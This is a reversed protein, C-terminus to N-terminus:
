PTVKFFNTTNAYTQAAITEVSENRLKAIAEVVYRTYGPENQKGRYPTPTLYPADTEVMMRDAPVAKAAAHVLPANKFSVVGSFSIMMGLDLFKNMWEVSGNFSHMVGGYEDIHADKLIEYTDALADRTHVSIPLHREHALEIQERFIKQQQTHHESDWHYDLGIEGVAIVKPQQLQQRLKDAVQQTYDMAYEPHWGVIAYLNDFRAALELAGQNLNADSGVIAMKTVGLEHAHQIYAAEQGAFPEDNLHTHSDFIQM